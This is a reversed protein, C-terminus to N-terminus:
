FDLIPEYARNRVRVLETRRLVRDDIVSFIGTAGQVDTLSRFSELVRAPQVRGPRLAELLLLMADYGLAPAESVLTRQFHEEYAARFREMGPSLPGAGVPATAVVGNLYLPDVRELVGADTWASTGLVEIGLTDLGFHSLQPALYPVDEPPIPLFVGAPELMEVRLTDEEGLGLRAIEAARLADRVGVVQPEFDTAGPEYHFRQVIPVGFRAAEAAFADAEAIAAYASPLIIAVRQHARSVAYRAVTRAAIPNPGELSYVGEGAEDATRATPSVIPLGAVRSQGAALLAEDELFGVVGTIGEIELESALLAALAANAEDDRPRLEVTYEDGLVTAAAVEIGEAVRAAFDAMAPPGGSPLVAGIAFSRVRALDEPLEGRLVGEAVAAEPEPAGADLAARAIQAARESEGRDLLDVAYRVQAIPALPGGAPAAALVAELEDASLSDTAARVM